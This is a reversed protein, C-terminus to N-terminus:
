FGMASFSVSEFMPFLFWVPEVALADEPIPLATGDEALLIPKSVPMGDADLARGYTKGELSDQGLSVYYGEHRVRKYWAQSPEVRYPKRAHIEVTVTFYPTEIGDDNPYFAEDATISAIRLTGPPFGLFTDSNVCDSFLYFSAPDFSPFNKVLRIGLDSVPRTIGEIPEGVATVIPRGDRDDEIPEEATVSFYSVQTPQGLPGQNPQDVEKFPASEYSASVEWQLPGRRNASVNQCRLRRFYPHVSKAQVVLPSAKITADTDAPTDCFVNFTRSATQTIMGRDDVNDTIGSSFTEDVYRVAM